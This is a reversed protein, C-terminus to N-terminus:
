KDDPASAPAITSKAREKARQALKDYGEAIRLMQQRADDGHMDAAQLRAEEARDRWHQPDDLGDRMM